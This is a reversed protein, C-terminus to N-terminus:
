VSLARVFYDGQEPIDDVRCVNIWTKKFVRERELSFFDQSICSEAPVPETGVEPYKAVWKKEQMQTKM